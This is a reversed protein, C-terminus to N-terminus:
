RTARAAVTGLVGNVFRASSESGFAKALEVAENVAARVPTENDFLVEYIAIRLINRDIAAVETLPWQPAVEALIRDIASRHALVGQVLRRAFEVVAPPDPREASLRALVEEAAHRGVDAEYLAQLALIRARRRTGTAM